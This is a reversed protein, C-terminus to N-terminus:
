SNKNNNKHSDAPFFIVVVVHSISFILSPIIPKLFNNLNIPFTSDKLYDFFYIIVMNALFICIYMLLFALIFQLIKNM